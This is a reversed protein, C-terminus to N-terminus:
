EDRKQKYQKRLEDEMKLAIPVLVTDEIETHDEMDKELSFIETLIRDTIEPNDAPPLYKIIINKLDLLASNLEDHTEEYDKVSKDKLNKVCNEDAVGGLYCEELTLIFPYIEKEEHATHEIVEKRYQDFFKKLIDKNKKHDADEWVLKNILIEILPLKINNFYNHSKLLYDVTHKLPIAQLKSTPSYDKNCFANVIGIFFETHINSQLCVQEVTKDGFGFKIRFRSIIPILHYNHHIVEALKTVKSIIMIKNKVFTSIIRLQEIYWLPCM